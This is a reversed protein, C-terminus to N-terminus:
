GVAARIRIIQRTHILDHGAYMRIMAEVSEEGREAHIGFRKREEETTSELLRLNAKRLASFQDLAAQADAQDYHLRSAWRDQDYGPIPPRDHALVMRYRFAGVIESDALHQLVHIISWKGPAERQALKERNIERVLDDLTGPTESLVVLPDRSGLAHYLSAIYEDVQTVPDPGTNVAQNM